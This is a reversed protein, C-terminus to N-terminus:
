KRGEPDNKRPPTPDQPAPEEQDPQRRHSGGGRRGMEAYGESGLAARRAVGGMRGIRSYFDPGHREKTVAGGLRGLDAFGEAGIQEKGEGGVDAGHEAFARAMELKKLGAAGLGEIRAGADHPLGFHRLIHELTGQLQGLLADFDVPLVRAGGVAIAKYRSWSEALWSM